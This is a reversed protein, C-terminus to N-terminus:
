VATIFGAGDWKSIEYPIKLAFLVTRAKRVKKPKLALGASGGALDGAKTKVL